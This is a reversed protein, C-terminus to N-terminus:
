SLERGPLTRGRKGEERAHKKGRETHACLWLLHHDRHEKDL